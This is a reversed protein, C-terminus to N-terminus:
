AGSRSRNRWPLGRGRENGGCVQIGFHLQTYVLKLSSSMADTGRGSDAQLRALMAWGTVWYPHAALTKELAAIASEGPASYVAERLSKDHSNRAADWRAVAHDPHVEAPEPAELDYYSSPAALLFRPVLEDSAQEIHAKAAQLKEHGSEGELLAQLQYLAKFVRLHTLAMSSLLAEAPRGLQRQTEALLSCLGESSPFSDHARRLEAAREEPPLARVQQEFSDDYPPLELELQTALEGRQPSRLVQAATTHMHHHTALRETNKKQTWEHWAEPEM